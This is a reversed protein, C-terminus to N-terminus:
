SVGRDFRMPQFEGCVGAHLDESSAGTVYRRAASQSFYNPQSFSRAAAADGIEHQVGLRHQTRHLVEHLGHAQIRPRNSSGTVQGHPGSDGQAREPALAYLHPELANLMEYQTHPKQGAALEDGRLVPGDARCAPKGAEAIRRVRSPVGVAGRQSRRHDLARQM